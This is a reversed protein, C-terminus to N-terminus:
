IDLSVKRETTSNRRDRWGRRAGSALDRRLRRGTSAGPEVVVENLKRPAAASSGHSAASGAGHAAQRQSERHLQGGAPASAAGEAEDDVRPPGSYLGEDLGTSTPLVPHPQCHSAPHPAPTLRVKIQLALFLMTLFFSEQSSSRCPAAAAAGGDNAGDDGAAAAVAGDSQGTTHVIYIAALVMQPLDEIKSAAGLQMIKNGVIDRFDEQEVRGAGRDLYCRPSACTSPQPSSSSSSSSRRTSNSQKAHFVPRFMAGDIFVTGEEADGRVGGVEKQGLRVRARRGSRSRSRRWRILYIM